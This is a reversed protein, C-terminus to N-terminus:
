RRLGGGRCTLPAGGCGWGQNAASASALRQNIIKSRRQFVFGDLLQQQIDHDVSAM